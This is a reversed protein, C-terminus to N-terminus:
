FKALIIPLVHALINKLICWRIILLNKGFTIFLRRCNRKQFHAKNKETSKITKRILKDILSILGKNTIHNCINTGTIKSSNTQRKLKYINKKWPSRHKKYDCRDTKKIAEPTQTTIWFDKESLNCFLKRRNEIKTANKINPIKRPTSYSLHIYSRLHNHSGFNLFQWWWVAGLDSLRKTNIM